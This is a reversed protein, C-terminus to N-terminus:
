QRDGHLISSSGPHSLAGGTLVLGSAVPASPHSVLAAQIVLAEAGVQRSRSRNGFARARSASEKRPTPPRQNGRYRSTRYLIQVRCVALRAATAARFILVADRRDQM